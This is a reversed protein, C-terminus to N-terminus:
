TSLSLTYLLQIIHHAVYLIDNQSHCSCAFILIVCTGRAWFYNVNARMNIKEKTHFYSKRQKSPFTPAFHSHSSLIGYPIHLFHQCLAFLQKLATSDYNSSTDAFKETQCYTFWLDVHLIRTNKMLITVEMIM